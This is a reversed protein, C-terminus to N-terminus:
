GLVAQALEPFTRRWNLGRVRDLDDLYAIMVPGQTPWLDVDMMYAVYYAAEPIDKLRDAVTAKFAPPLAQMSMCAPISVVEALILRLNPFRNGVYARLEPLHYINPAYASWNLKGEFHPHAEAAQQMLSLARDFQEWRMPFRLYEARERLDDLSISLHVERFRTLDSITKETLLTGNTVYSLSVHTHGNDLLWRMLARYQPSALPEGGLFNLDRITAINERIYRWIGDDKTIWGENVPFTMTNEYRDLLAKDEHWKSSSGVGCHICKLNCVYGTRVDIHSPGIALSGDHALVDAFADIRDGAMTVMMRKSTGGMAERKFCTTCNDPVVGDRMDRRIRRMAEGNWATAPDTKKLNDQSPLKQSWGCPRVAGTNSMGLTTFPLKCFTSM